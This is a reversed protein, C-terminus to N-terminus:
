AYHNPSCQSADHVNRCDTEFAFEAAVHQRADGSSATAIATVASTM